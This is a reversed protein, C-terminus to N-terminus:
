KWTEVEKKCSERYVNLMRGLMKQTKNKNCSNEKKIQNNTQNFKTHNYRERWSKNNYHIFVFICVVSDM